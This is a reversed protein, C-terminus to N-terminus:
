LNKAYISEDPEPEYGLATWFEIAGPEGHFVRIPAREAGLSRMRAEVERVLATAVGQRRWAPHTALRYLSGRWGDWAGILSGVVEGESVRSCSCATM